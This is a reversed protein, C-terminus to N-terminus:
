MFIRNGCVCLFFDASAACDRLGGFWQHPFQLELEIPMFGLWAWLALMGNSPLPWQWLPNWVGKYLQELEKSLRHQPQFEYIMANIIKCSQFCCLFAMSKKKLKGWLPKAIYCFYGRAGVELFSFSFICNLYEFKLININDKGLACNLPGLSFSTM